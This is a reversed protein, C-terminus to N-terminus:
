AGAAFCLPSPRSRATRVAQERRAGRRDARETRWWPRRRPAAGLGPARASSCRTSV